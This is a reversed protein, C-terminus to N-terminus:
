YRPQRASSIYTYPQRQQGVRIIHPQGPKNRKQKKTEGKQIEEQCHHGKCAVEVGAEKQGSEKRNTQRIKNKKIGVTNTRSKNQHLKRLRTVVAPNTASWNIIYSLCCRTRSQTMKSNQKENTKKRYLHARYPDQEKKMKPYNVWRSARTDTYRLM